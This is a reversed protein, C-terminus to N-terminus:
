EHLERGTERAPVEIPAYLAPATEEAIASLEVDGTTLVLGPAGQNDHAFAAPPILLLLGAVLVATRRVM